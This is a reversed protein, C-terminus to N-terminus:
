LPTTPEILTKHFGDCFPAKSSLKCGCLKVTKTEAIVFEVPEFKTGIHSDDCFPQNKSLGCACWYYTGPQLEVPYNAKQAINPTDM